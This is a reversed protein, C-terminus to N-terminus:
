WRWRLRELRDHQELSFAETPALPHHTRRANGVEMQRSQQPRGHVQRSKSDLPASAAKQHAHRVPLVGTRM